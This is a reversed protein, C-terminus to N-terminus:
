AGPGARVRGSRCRRVGLAREDEGQGGLDSLQLFSVSVVDLGQPVGEFLGVALVEVQLPLEGPLSGCDAVVRSM